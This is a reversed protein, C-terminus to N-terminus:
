GCHNDQEYITDREDDTKEFSRIVLLKAEIM